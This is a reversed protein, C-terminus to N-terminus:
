ETVGFAFSGFKWAYIGCVLLDYSCSSCENNYQDSDVASSKKHEYGTYFKFVKISQLTILAGLFFHDDGMPKGRLQRVRLATIMRTVSDLSTEMTLHDVYLYIGFVYPVNKGGLLSPM